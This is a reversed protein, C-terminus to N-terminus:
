QYRNLLKKSEIEMRIDDVLVELRNRAMRGPHNMEYIVKNDRFYKSVGSDGLEKVFEYASNEAITGFTKTFFVNIPADVVEIEKDIFGANRCAIHLNWQNNPEFCKCANSLAVFDLCDCWELDPKQLSERIMWYTKNWFGPMYATQFYCFWLPMAMTNEDNFEHSGMWEYNERGVFFILPKRGIWYIGQPGDINDGYEKSCDAVCGPMNDRYHNWIRQYKDEVSSFRGLFDDNRSEVLKRLSEM